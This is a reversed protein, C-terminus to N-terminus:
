DCLHHDDPDAGITDIAAALSVGSDRDDCYYETGVQDVSSAVNIGWGVAQFGEIGVNQTEEPLTLACFASTFGTAETTINYDITDYEGKSYYSRLPNQTCTMDVQGDVLPTTTTDGAELFFYRYNFGHKVLGGALPDPTDNAGSTYVSAFASPNTAGYNYTEYSMNPIKSYRHYVDWKMGGWFATHHDVTQKYDLNASMMPAPVIERFSRIFERTGLSALGACNNPDNEIDNNEGVGTFYLGPLLTLLTQCKTKLNDYIDDFFNVDEPVLGGALYEPEEALANFDGTKGSNFYPTDATILERPVCTAPIPAAILPIIIANKMGNISLGTEGSFTITADNCDYTYRGNYQSSGATDLTETWMTAFPKATANASMAALGFAAVTLGLKKGFIM